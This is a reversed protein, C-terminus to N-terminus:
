GLQPIAGVEHIQAGEDRLTALANGHRGEVFWTAGSGALTPVVGCADAIRQKWGVLEPEVLLAAPELQNVFAKSADPALQDFAAYAAPTSVQLPPIILTVDLDHHKLPTVVEGIGGVRARGGLMCFPIDAGLRSAQILDRYDAWRLIAAADTSGGGLGGGHPIRKDIQVRASRGALRLAQAILNSDDTPVGHSYPGAVDLAVPEDPSQEVITLRDVLSVSVMEADILHYGDDRTGTIQLSLTLKAPAEITTM